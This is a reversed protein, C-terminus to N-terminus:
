LFGLMDRFRISVMELCIYCVFFVFFWCTQFKFGLLFFCGPNPKPNLTQFTGTKGPKRRPDQGGYSNFSQVKDNWNRSASFEFSFHTKGAKKDYGMGDM